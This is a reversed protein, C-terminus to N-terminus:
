AVAEAHGRRAGLRQLISTSVDLEQAAARASLGAVRALEDEIHHSPRGLHKGQARARALGAVVREQIRAREFEAIAGLIHLQLRRCAHSTASFPSPCTSYQARFGDTYLGDFNIFRQHIPSRILPAISSTTRDVGRGIATV